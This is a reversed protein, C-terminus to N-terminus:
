YEFYTSRKSFRFDTGVEHKSSLHLVKGQGPGEGPKFFAGFQVGSSSENNGGCFTENTTIEFTPPGYQRKRNIAVERIMDLLRREKTAEKIGYSCTCAQGSKM